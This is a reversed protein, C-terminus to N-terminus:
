YLERALAYPMRTVATNVTSGLHIENPGAERQRRSRRRRRQRYQEAKITRCNPFGTSVTTSLLPNSIGIAPVTKPCLVMRSM